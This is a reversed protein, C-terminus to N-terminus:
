WIWVIVALDMPLKRCSMDEVQKVHLENFVDHKGMGIRDITKDLPTRGDHPDYDPVPPQHELDESNSDSDHFSSM